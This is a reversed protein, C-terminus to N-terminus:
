VHRDRGYKAGLDRPKEVIVLVCALDKGVVVGVYGVVAVYGGHVPCGHLGDVDERAAVGALWEAGCPFSLACVILSV